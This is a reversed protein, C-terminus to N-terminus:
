RRYSLRLMLERPARPAVFDVFGGTLGWAIVHQETLNRGIFSVSFPSDPSTLRLSANLLYYDDQRLNESYTLEPYFETSYTADVRTSVGWSGVLDPTDVEVFGGGKFEPAFILPLGEFNCLGTEDIQGGLAPCNPAANPFDEYEADTFAGDAGVRLYDNVFWVADFEVGQSVAEAANQVEFTNVAGVVSRAVQLDEIEMRFLAVNTQLAGGFLQAKMGLEYTTNLEDDFEPNDQSRDSFGGTKHGQSVSGFLMLSDSPQYRLTFSPTFRSETRVDAFTPGTNVDFEGNFPVIENIFEFDKEEYSWRGGLVATIQDTLNYRLQGFLAITMTDQVWDERQSRPPPLAGPPFTTLFAPINQDDRVDRDIDSHEFYLGAIYDFRRFLESTFRLEQTIGRYVEGTTFRSAGGAVGGDVTAFRFGFDYSQFGTISTLTGVGPFEHNVDITVNTTDQRRGPCFTTGAIEAECNVNIRWDRDFEFSPDFAQFVALPLPQGAQPGGPFVGGVTEVMTQGDYNLRMHEVKLGVHTSPGADWLFKLRMNIDEQAAGDPGPSRNELYGNQDRYKVAFRASLKDTLPGSVFGDVDVVGGVTSFDSASVNAGAEFTPTPDATNIIIAGALTNKGFLTGQPGRLVEVNQMDFLPHLNIAGRGIYVDDVFRGVSQEVSHSTGTGIGRIYLNPLVGTSSFEFNPIILSIDSLDVAGTKEILDAGVSSVSVPVSQISEVRRTATVTIMDMAGQDTTDQAAAASIRLGVAAAGCLLGCKTPRQM